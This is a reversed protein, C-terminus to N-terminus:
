LKVSQSSIGMNVTLELSEVVERAVTQAQFRFTSVIICLQFIHRAM